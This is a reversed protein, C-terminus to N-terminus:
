CESLPHYWFSNKQIPLGCKLPGFFCNFAIVLLANADVLIIYKFADSVMNRDLNCSCMSTTIFSLNVLIISLCGSRIVVKSVVCVFIAGASADILDWGGRLM